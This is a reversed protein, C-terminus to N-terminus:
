SRAITLSSVSLAGYDKLVKAAQRVTAGTTYIDDILVLNEGKIIDEIGLSKLTFINSSINIREERGKKSQKAESSQRMLVEHVPLNLLQAILVSQNFGRDYHRKESLPIPVVLSGAFESKYLKLLRNQFGKVIGADGRFKYKAIIEQLFDNYQYISRNITLVGGLDSDNEWRLCDNCVGNQQYKEPFISLPRGCIQCIEGIIPLLMEECELCIVNRSQLGFVYEWSVPQLFAKDCWLCHEM